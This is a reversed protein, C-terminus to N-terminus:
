CHPNRQNFSNISALDFDCMIHNCNLNIMRLFSDWVTDYAVKTKRQMLAYVCPITTTFNTANVTFLQSFIQLVTKFTGDFYISSSQSFYNLNRRSAFIIIREVRFTNKLEDSIIFDSARKPFPYPMNERQRIKQINKQLTNYEPLIALIKPSFISNTDSIIHRPALNSSLATSRLDGIM